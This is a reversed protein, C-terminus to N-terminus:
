NLRAASPPDIAKLINWLHRYGIRGAQVDVLEQELSYIFVGSAEMSGPRYPFGPAFEFLKNRPVIYLSIQTAEALAIINATSAQPELALWKLLLSVTAPVLSHAAGTARFVTIPYLSDRGFRFLGPGSGLAKEGAAQIPFKGHGPPLQLVHFHLHDITAGAGWGNYLIVWGSLAEALAIIDEVIQQIRAGTSVLDPTQWSQPQHLSSAITTHFPAFPYPNPLANYNRGNLTLVHFHQMGRQQRRLDIVDLACAARKGTGVRLARRPNFQVIFHGEGSPDDYRFYRLQSLDDEIFGGELHLAFLYSLADPLPLSQLTRAIDRQRSQWSLDNAEVANKRISEFEMM